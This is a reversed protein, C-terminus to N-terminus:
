RLQRIRLFILDGFYDLTLSPLFRAFMVFLEDAPFSGTIRVKNDSTVHLRM